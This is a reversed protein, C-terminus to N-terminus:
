ENWCSEVKFSPFNSCFMYEIYRVCILHTFLNVSVMLDFWHNYVWTLSEAGLRERQGERWMPADLASRQSVLSARMETCNVSNDIEKDTM